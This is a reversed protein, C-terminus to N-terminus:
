IQRSFIVKEGSDAFANECFNHNNHIVFNTFVFITKECFNHFHRGHSCRSENNERMKLNKM